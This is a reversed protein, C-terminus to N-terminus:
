AAMAGAAPPPAMPANPLAAGELNAPAPGPPLGMPMGMPAAPPVAASAASVKTQLRTLYEAFRIEVSEPCEDSICELMGAKVHETIFDLDAAANVPPMPKAPDMLREVVSEGYNFLATQMRTFRELDPNDFLPLLWPGPVLGSKALSQARQMKGAWTGSLYNVPKLKLRFADRDMDVSAWDIKEIVDKRYWSTEFKRDLPEGNKERAGYIDKAEDILLEGCDLAMNQYNAEVASFRETEFDHYVLLADGSELSGPKKGMAALQSVGALEYAWQFLQILWAIQQQSVPNSPAKIEPALNGDYEVIAGVLPLLRATVVKAGRRVFVKMPAGLRFGEHLVGVTQNIAWQIPALEEALGRGWFGEDPPSWHLFAYPLRSRKWPGKHLVKGPITFVHLGEDKGGASLHHSETVHILNSTDGDLENREDDFIAERANMIASRHAPFLEALVDRSYLKRHHINRVDGYRGELEDVYLEKKPIRDHAMNGRQDSGVKVCGTGRQCADRFVLPAVKRFRTEEQKAAVFRTMRRARLKYSWEAGDGLVQVIPFDQAIRAGVTDIMSQVINLRLPQQGGQELLQLAAAMPGRVNTRLRNQYMMAHFDDMKRRWAQRDHLHQVHGDITQALEDNTKSTWWQAARDETV